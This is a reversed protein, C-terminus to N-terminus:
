PRPGQPARPNGDDDLLLAKRANDLQDCVKSRLQYPSLGHSNVLAEIHALAHMVRAVRRNEDSDIDM